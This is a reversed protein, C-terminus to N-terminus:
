RGLFAGPPEALAALALRRFRHSAISRIHYLGDVIDVSKLWSISSM